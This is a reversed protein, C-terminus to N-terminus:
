VRWSDMGYAVASRLKALSVGDKAQISLGHLLATYFEALQETRINKPVDGDMKGRKLRAEIARATQLRIARLDEQVSQSEKGINIASLVILCGSPTEDSAFEAVADYLMVSVAERATRKETLAKATTSGVTQRYLSVAERFLAEKSGFAAYISAQTLGLSARLDAMSTAEYGYLWFLKMAQELARTRDFERPRGRGRIVDSKNNTSRRTLLNAKGTKAM